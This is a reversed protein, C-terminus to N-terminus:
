RFIFRTIETLQSNDDEPTFVGDFTTVVGDVRTTVLYNTPGTVGCASFYDVSLIYEGSPPVVSDYTINENNVGDISCGPNSDLDLAGGSTSTRNAFFIETGDPEILSLDVDTETDWSVSVQLDGTGVVVTTVEVDEQSSVEGEANGIQIGIQADSGDQITSFNVVVSSETVAAPLQVTFFGGDDSIVFITSFATDSSVPIEASGGSIVSIPQSDANLPNLTLSGVTSPPTGLSFTTTAQDVSVDEILGTPIATETEPATDGPPVGTDGDADGDTTESSGDDTPAGDTGEETTKTRITQRRYKPPTTWMMTWMTM